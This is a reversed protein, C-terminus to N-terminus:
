CLDWRLRLSSLHFRSRPRGCDLLRWGRKLWLNSQLIFLFPLFYFAPKNLPFLVPHVEAFGLLRTRQTDTIKQERKLLVLGRLVLGLWLVCASYHLCGQISHPIYPSECLVVSWVVSCVSCESHGWTQFFTASTGGQIGRHYIFHSSTGDLTGKWHLFVTGYVGGCVASVRKIKESRGRLYGIRWQTCKVTFIGCHSLCLTFALSFIPNPM